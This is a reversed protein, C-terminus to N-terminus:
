TVSSSRGSGDGDDSPPFYRRWFRDLVGDRYWRYRIKRIVYEGALLLAIGAQVGVGQWATWVALPAFLALGITLLASAGFFACWVLTVGRLWARLRSPIEEKEMARAIRAIMPERGPRLSLAFVACLFIAPLAPVLLAALALTGHETSSRSLFLYVAVAYVAGLLARGLLRGPTPGSVPPM